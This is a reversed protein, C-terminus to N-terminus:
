KQQKKIKVIPRVFKKLEETMTDISVQNYYKDTTNGQEHGVLERVVSADMNYRSRCLTIFTKRFTRATYHETIKLDKILYRKIARGLNEVNNYDLLRGEKIEKIRKKLIPLLDKHFAVERFKKRKPSYYHIVKNKLDVNNANISLVDSSRLGSYFLLYVLTKFNSNKLKLNKFIVTITEDTFIIKEKVEPRTKVERNVKFMPTYNYEFLFNLFHNLQKGYSHITNKSRDMSKIEILWDEIKIKNISTSSFDENFTESFKKFFREYDKITKPHKNQNNRLFHEKADKITVKQIGIRRLRKRKATLEEQMKKAIAEAKKINTENVAMGTCKTHVKKDIADYYQVYLVEGKQLVIAM